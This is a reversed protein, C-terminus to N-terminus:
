CSNSCEVERWRFDFRDWGAVKGPPAFKIVEDYGMEPSDTNTDVGMVKYTNDTIYEGDDGKAQVCFCNGVGALSHGFAIKDKGKKNNCFNQVAEYQIQGNGLGAPNFPGLPGSYATGAKASDIYNLPGSCSPEVNYQNCLCDKSTQSGQPANASTCSAPASACPKHPSPGQGASTMGHAETWSQTKEVPLSHSPCLSSFLVVLALPATANTSM